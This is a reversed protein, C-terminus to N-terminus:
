FFGTYRLSDAKLQVFICARTLVTCPQGVEVLEYARRDYETSADIAESVSEPLSKRNRDHSGTNSRVYQLHQLGTKAALLLLFSDFQETTGVVDFEQITRQFRAYDDETVACEAPFVHPAVRIPEGGRWEVDYGAQRMTSTCKDGLVERVQMDRVNAAWEGADSGWAASGMVDPWRRNVDSGPSATQHKRIYYNYFSLYQPFPKRLLISTSVVCGYPEFQERLEAVDQMVRAFNEAPWNSPWNGRVEVLTRPGEREGSKWQGVADRWRSLLAVWEDEKFGYILPYEWEGMATQKDFIFRLTTGGTKSLHRYLHFACEPLKTDSPIKTSPGGAHRGQNWAPHWSPTSPIVADVAPIRSATTLVALITVITTTARRSTRRRTTISSTSTTVTTPTTTSISM